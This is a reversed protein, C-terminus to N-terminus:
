KSLKGAWFLIIYHSQESQPVLITFYTYINLLYVVVIFKTFISRVSTFLSQLTSSIHLLPIWFHLSYTYLCLFSSFICFITFLTHLVTAHSSCFPCFWCAFPQTININQFQFHLHKITKYQKHHLPLYGFSFFFGMTINFNTCITM